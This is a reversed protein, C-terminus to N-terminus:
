TTEKTNCQADRSRVVNADYARVHDRARLFLLLNGEMLYRPLHEKERLRARRGGM